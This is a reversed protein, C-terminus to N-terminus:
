CVRIVGSFLAAILGMLAGLFLGAGVVAVYAAIRQPSPRVRSPVYATEDVQLRTLRLDFGIM